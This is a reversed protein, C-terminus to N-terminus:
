ALVEGLEDGQEDRRIAAVRVAGGMLGLVVLGIGIAVAPVLAANWNQDRGIRIAGIFLLWLLSVPILRKWGLDMLQDYRFRPLTGRAAVFLALLVILKLM